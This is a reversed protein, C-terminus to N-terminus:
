YAMSKIQACFAKKMYELQSFEESRDVSVATCCSRATNGTEKVGNPIDM